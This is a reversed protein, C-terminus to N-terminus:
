LAFPLPCIAFPFGNSNQWKGNSNQSTRKDSQRKVQEEGV